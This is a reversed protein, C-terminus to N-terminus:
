QYVQADPLTGGISPVEPLECTPNLAQITLQRLWTGRSNNDPLQTTPTTPLFNSTPIGIDLKMQGAFVAAGGVGLLLALQRLSAVVFEGRLEVFPPNQNGIDQTMYLSMTFLRGGLTIPGLRDTLVNIAVQTLYQKTSGQQGFVRVMANARGRPLANWITKKITGIESTGFSSIFNFGRTLSIGGIVDKVDPIHDSQGGITVNGEIKSIQSNAGTGYTTQRDTVTYRLETGDENQNVQIGVRQLGDSVPVFLYSRWVDITVMAFDIYDKRTIALGTTTRTTYGEADVSCSSSWRNSLIYNDCTSVWTEISYSFLASKDGLIETIRCHKPIPGGRCDSFLVQNFDTTLPSTLVIDPGVQYTLQQRPELLVKQLNPISIGLRDGPFVVGGVVPPKNSSIMYPQIVGAITLTVHYYLPDKQTPDYQLVASYEQTRLERFQITIGNYSLLAM